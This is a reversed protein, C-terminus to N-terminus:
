LFTYLSRQAGMVNKHKVRVVGTMEGHIATNRVLSYQLHVPIVQAEYAETDKTHLGTSLYSANIFTM